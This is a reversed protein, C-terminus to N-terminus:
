FDIIPLIKLLNVILLYTAKQSLTMSKWDSPHPFSPKIDEKSIMPLFVASLIDDSYGSKLSDMAEDIDVQLLKHRSELFFLAYFRGMANKAMSALVSADKFGFNALNLLGLM